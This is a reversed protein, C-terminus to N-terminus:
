KGAIIDLLELEIIDDLFAEPTNVRITQKSLLFIRAAVERMWSQDDAAPARSGRHLERIINAAATSRIGPITYVKM